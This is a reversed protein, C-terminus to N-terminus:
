AVKIKNRKNNLKENKFAEMFEKVERTSLCNRKGRVQVVKFDKNIEVAFFPKEEEGIRRIFFL